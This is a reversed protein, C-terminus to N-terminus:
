EIVELGPKISQININNIGSKNQILSFSQKLIAATKFESVILIIM